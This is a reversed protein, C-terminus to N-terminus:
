EIASQYDRLEDIDDLEMINDDLEMINDDLTEM